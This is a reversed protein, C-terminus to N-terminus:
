VAVYVKKVKVDPLRSPKLRHYEDNAQNAMFMYLWYTEWDGHIKARQAVEFYTNRRVAVAAIRKRNQWKKLRSIGAIGKRKTIVRGERSDYFGRSDGLREGELFGKGSYATKEFISENRRESNEMRGHDGGPGIGLWKSRRRYDRGNGHCLRNTGESNRSNRLDTSCENKRAEM